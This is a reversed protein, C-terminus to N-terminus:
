FHMCSRCDNHDDVVEVKKFGNEICFKFMNRIMDEDKEYTEYFGGDYFLIIMDCDSELYDEYSDIDDVPAGIPYRRIRVFSLSSLTALANKLESGSYRGPRYYFYNLEVDDICWDYMSIDMLENLSRFFVEANGDQFSVGRLM